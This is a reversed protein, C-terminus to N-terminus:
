GGAIAYGRGLVLSEEDPRAHVPLLPCVREGGELDAGPTELDRPGELVAVAGTFIEEARGTVEQMFNKTVEFLIDIGSPLPALKEVEHQNALAREM